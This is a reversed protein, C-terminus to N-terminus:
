EQHKKTAQEMSAEIYTKPGAVIIPNPIALHNRTERYHPRTEPITDNSLALVGRKRYIYWKTV